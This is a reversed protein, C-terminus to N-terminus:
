KALRRVALVQGIASIGEGSPIYSIKDKTMQLVFGLQKAMAEFTEEDSAYINFEVRFAAKRRVIVKQMM